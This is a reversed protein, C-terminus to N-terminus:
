RFQTVGTYKAASVSYTMTWGIQKCIKNELHVSVQEAKMAPANTNSHQQLKPENAISKSFTLTQM